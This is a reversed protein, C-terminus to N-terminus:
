VQLVNGILNSESCELYEIAVVMKSLAREEIEAMSILLEPCNSQQIELLSKSVYQSDLWAPHSM